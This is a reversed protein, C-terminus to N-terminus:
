AEGPFTEVHGCRIDDCELRAPYSRVTTRPGAGTAVTPRYDPKAAIYRTDTGGCRPCPSGSHPGPVPSDSQSM